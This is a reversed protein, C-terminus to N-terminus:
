SEKAKKKKPPVQDGKFDGRESQAQGIARPVGGVFATLLDISRDKADEYPVQLPELGKSAIYAAFGNLDGGMKILLDGLEKLSKSTHNGYTLKPM